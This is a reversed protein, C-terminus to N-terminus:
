RWPNVVEVKVPMQLEHGIEKLLASATVQNVHTTIHWGNCYRQAQYGNSPSRSVLPIASLVKNLRAVKDLGFVKLTEVFTEAITDGEIMKDAVKVRLRGASKRTRNRMRKQKSREGISNPVTTLKEFRGLCAKVEQELTQLRQCNDINVTVQSFNGAMGAEAITLKLDDSAQGIVAFLENFKHNVTEPLRNM